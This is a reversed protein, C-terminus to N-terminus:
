WRVVGGPPAWLGIGGAGAATQFGLREFVGDEYGGRSLAGVCMEEVTYRIDTM